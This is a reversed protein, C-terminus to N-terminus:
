TMELASAEALVLPGFGVLSHASPDKSHHEVSLILPAVSDAAISTLFTTWCVSHCAPRKIISLLWKKTLAGLNSSITGLARLSDLSTPRQFAEDQLEWGYM